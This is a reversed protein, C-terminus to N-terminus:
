FLESKSSLQLFLVFFEQIEEIWIGQINIDSNCKSIMGKEQRYTNKGQGMHSYITSM